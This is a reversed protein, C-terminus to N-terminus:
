LRVSPLACAHTASYPPCSACLGQPPPSPRPNRTRSRRCRRRDARLDGCALLAREVAQFGARHEDVVGGGRGVDGALKVIGGGAAARMKEIRGDGAALGARLVAHEGHHDAAIGFGEGLGLRHDAAVGARHLQEARRARALEGLHHVLDANGPQHLAQGLRDVERM